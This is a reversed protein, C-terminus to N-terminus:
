RPAPHVGAARGPPPDGGSPRRPYQPCRRGGGPAAPKGHVPPGGARGHGAGHGPRSRAGPLAQGRRRGPHPRLGGGVALPQSAPLAISMTEASAAEFVPNLDRPVVFSVLGTGCRLAGPRLAPGRRDQGRLRRRHAPPRQHGQTRGQPAPRAPRGHHPRPDLRAPRRPGGVQGPHRHRGTGGPRGPSRRPPLPRAQASRLDREPRGAGGTGLVAGTDSHLGSPLDVAVVPLSNTTRLSNLCNIADQFHGEVPRALGTGFIADVLCHVPHMRNLTLVTDLLAPMKGPQDFVQCPLRLKSAIAFNRAADGQLTDPSVLLFIFPYAGLGHVTRAIVLGDGGNNGPGAFVCVTRGAVPGFVRQMLDVTARGANEMLVMGPLGIEEITQRDLERMQAASTLQM